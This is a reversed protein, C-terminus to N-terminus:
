KRRILYLALLGVPLVVGMFYLIEIPARFIFVLVLLLLVYLTVKFAVSSLIAGRTSHQVDSAEAGTQSLSDAAKIRPEHGAGQTLITT